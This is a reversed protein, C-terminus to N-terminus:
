ESPEYTETINNRQYYAQLDDEVAEDFDFVFEADIIEGLPEDGAEYYVATPVGVYCGNSDVALGGSNGSVIKANTVIYGDQSYLSSVLGNTLTLSGGSLPPYGLIIIEDGLRTATSLCEESHKFYPYGGRERVKDHYGYVNGEEDLVPAEISLYALDHGTENEEDYIITSWYAERILGSEPDPFGVMCADEALGEVVHYNTLVYGAPDVNTGSGYYIYDDDECVIKVVAALIENDTTIPTHEIDLYQIQAFWEPNSIDADFLSMDSFYGVPEMMPGLESLATVEEENRYESLLASSNLFTYAAYSVIGIVLVILLYRGFSFSRSTPATAPAPAAARQHVAAGCHGCFRDSVNIPQGCQECFM